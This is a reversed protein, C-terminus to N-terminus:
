ADASAAPPAAADAASVAQKSIDFAAVPRISYLPETVPGFVEEVRGIPSRDEACIASGIDLARGGPQCQVVLAGDVVATVCGCWQLSDSASVTFPLVPPLADPPLEHATRLPSSSAAEEDDGDEDHMTTRTSSLAQHGSGGSSGGAAQPREDDSDDSDDEAMGILRRLTAADIERNGTLQLPEAETEEGEELSEEGESSTDSSYGDEQEMQQIYEQQRRSVSEITGSGAALHPVYRRFIHFKVDVLPASPSAPRHPTLSVDVVTVWGSNPDTFTSATSSSSMVSMASLERSLVGPQVREDDSLEGGAAAKQQQQLRQSELQADRGRQQLALQQRKQEQQREEERQEARIAAERLRMESLKEVDLDFEADTEGVSLMRDDMEEGEM